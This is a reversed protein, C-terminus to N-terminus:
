MQFNFSGWATAAAATKIDSDQLNLPSSTADPPVDYLHLRKAMGANESLLLRGIKDKGSTTLAMCMMSSAAVTTLRDIEKETNYLRSAEHLFESAM